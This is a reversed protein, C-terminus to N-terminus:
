IFIISLILLIHFNTLVYNTISFTAIQLYKKVSERSINMRNAVEAYRLREHRSLLYVKQQQPPLRDIAEDLITYYDNPDSSSGIHSSTYSEEFDNFHQREISLKRLCNLTHNKSIVFLYAKFNKVGALVERNMWIKLFVDMVIEEALDVSNTIRFIHKGLQQHYKYYLRNYAIEDGGAVKILENSESLDSM